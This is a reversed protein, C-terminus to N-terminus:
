LGTELISQVAAALDAVVPVEALGNIQLLEAQEAGRGSRVLMARAGAAHGAQLDTIADGIMVSRTLDIGLAAAAAVLMGPRPKRCACNEAPHHPCMYAADIRGGARRVAAVTWQNIAEAEALPIIGRGVLSQNTAIVIRYPSNALQRLAQVAQPLLIAEALSTVYNARHQLIVGDRDLFVAPILTQPM